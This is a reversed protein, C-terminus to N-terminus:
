FMLVDLWQYVVSSLLCDCEYILGRLTIETRNLLAVCVCDVMAMFYLLDVAKPAWQLSM